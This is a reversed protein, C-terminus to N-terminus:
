INPIKWPSRFSRMLLKSAEANNIIQEKDPDWKITQKTDMAIEVQMGVFLSRYVV